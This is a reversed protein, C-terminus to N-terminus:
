VQAQAQHGCGGVARRERAKGGGSATHQGAADRACPLVLRRGVQKCGPSSRCAKCRGTGSVLVPCPRGFSLVASLVAVVDRETAKGSAISAWTSLCHSLCPAGPPEQASTSPLLRVCWRLLAGAQAARAQSGAPRGCPMGALTCAPLRMYPLHARRWSRALVAQTCRGPWRAAITCRRIAEEAREVASASAPGSETFSLPNCLTQQLVTALPPGQDAAHDPSRQKGANCHRTCRFRTATTCTPTHM